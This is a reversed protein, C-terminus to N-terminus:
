KQLCGWFDSNKSFDSLAVSLAGLQNLLLAQVQSQLAPAVDAICRTLLSLLFGAEGNRFIDQYIVSQRM